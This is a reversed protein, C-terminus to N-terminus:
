LQYNTIAEEKFNGWDEPNPAGLEFLEILRGVLEEKFGMGAVMHRCFEMEKKDVRGDAYIMLIIDFLQELATETHQPIEIEWEDRKKVIADIQRSKLGYKKGIKQIFKLESTHIHGDVSALAVLNRVHAKKYKLYQHEFFGIMSSFYSYLYTNQLISDFYAGQKTCFCYFPSLNFWM